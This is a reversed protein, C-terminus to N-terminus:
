ARGRKFEDYSKLMKERTDKDEIFSRLVLKLMRLEDKYKFMGATALAAWVFLVGETFTISIM